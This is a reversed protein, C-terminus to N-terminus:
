ILLFGSVTSDFFLRVKTQDVYQFPCGSQILFRACLDTVTPPLPRPGLSTLFTTPNLLILTVDSLVLEAPESITRHPFLPSYNLGFCPHCVLM